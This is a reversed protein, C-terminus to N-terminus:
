IRLKKLAAPTMKKNQIMSTWEEKSSGKMKKRNMFDKKMENYIRIFYTTM